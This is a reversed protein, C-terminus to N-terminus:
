KPTEPLTKADPQKIEQGIADSLKKTGAPQITTQAKGAFFKGKVLDVFIPDGKLEGRWNTLVANGTLELTQNTVGDVVSYSYVLKDATAHNTGGDWDIADVVVNTEAIISEIELRSDNTMFRATLLQCTLQMQTDTVKVNGSYVASRSDLNFELADANILTPGRDPKPPKPNGPSNTQALLALGCGGIVLFALFTRM